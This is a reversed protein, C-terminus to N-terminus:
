KMITIVFEGNQMQPEFLHEAEVINRASVMSIFLYFPIDNIMM